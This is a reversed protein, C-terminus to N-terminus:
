KTLGFMLVLHNNQYLNLTQDAVDFSFDKTGLIGLFKNELASLKQDLCARRTSAAPGFAITKSGAEYAGVYNNCGSNGNFRKEELNFNITVPSETQTEGNM